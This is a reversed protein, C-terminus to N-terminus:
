DAQAAPSASAAVADVAAANAVTVPTSTGNTDVTASTIIASTSALVPLYAAAFACGLRRNLHKAEPCSHVYLPDSPRRHRVIHQLPLLVDLISYLTDDYMVTM